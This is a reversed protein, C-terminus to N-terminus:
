DARAHYEGLASVRGESGGYSLTCRAVSRYRSQYKWLVFLTSYVYYCAPSIQQILLKKEKMARDTVDYTCMCCSSHAGGMMILQFVVFFTTDKCYVRCVFILICTCYAQVVVVHIIFFLCLLM